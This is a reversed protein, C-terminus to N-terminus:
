NPISPSRPTANLWLARPELALARNWARRAERQRGVGALLTGLTNYATARSPAFYVARSADALGLRPFGWDRWVRALGEYAAADTPDLQRARDFHDYAADLIGLERYREAVSRHREPTSAM